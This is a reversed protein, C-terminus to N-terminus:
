STRRSRQKALLYSRTGPLYTFAHQRRRQRSPPLGARPSLPETSHRTEGRADEPIQPEEGGHITRKSSASKCSNPWAPYPANRHAQRTCEGSAPTAEQAERVGREPPHAGQHVRSEARRAGRWAKSAENCARGTEKCASAAEKCAKGEQDCGRRSEGLQSPTGEAGRITTRRKFAGRVRYHLPCDEELAGQAELIQWSTNYSIGDSSAQEEAQESKKPSAFSVATKM